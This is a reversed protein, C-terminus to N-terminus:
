NGSCPSPKTKAHSFLTQFCSLIKLGFKKAFSPVSPETYYKHNKKQIFKRQQDFSFM